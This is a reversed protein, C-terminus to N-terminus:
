LIIFLLNIDNAVTMTVDSAVIACSVISTFVAFSPAGMWDVM